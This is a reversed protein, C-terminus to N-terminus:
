FRHNKSKKTKTEKPSEKKLKLTITDLVLLCSFIRISTMNKQFIVRFKIECKSNLQSFGNGYEKKATECKVM